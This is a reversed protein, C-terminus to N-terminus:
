LGVEEMMQDRTLKRRYLRVGYIWGSMIYGAGNYMSGLCMREASMVPDMGEFTPIVGM